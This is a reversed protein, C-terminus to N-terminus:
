AEIIIPERESPAFARRSLEDRTQGVCGSRRQGSCRRARRSRWGAQHGANRQTRQTPTDLSQATTILFSAWCGGLVGTPDDPNEGVGIPRVRREQDIRAAANCQVPHGSLIACNRRSAGAEKPPSVARASAIWSACHLHSADDLFLCTPGQNMTSMCFSKHMTATVESM